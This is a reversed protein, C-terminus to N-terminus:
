TLIKNQFGLKDKETLIDFKEIIQCYKQYNKNWCYRMFKENIDMLWKCGTVFIHYFLYLKPFIKSTTAFRDDAGMWPM